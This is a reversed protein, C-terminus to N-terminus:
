LSKVQVLQARTFLMRLMSDINSKPIKDGCEPCTTEPYVYTIKPNTIISNLKAMLVSYQDNTLTKLIDIYIKLKSIVSKNINNKYTKIEIPILSANDHDIQFFGNIYAMTNLTDSYQKTINEPLSAYQLFTSYLTAHSYSIALDDSIQLLESEQMHSSTTTDQNFIKNFKEKTEDDEYEVMDKININILSTKGCKDNPCTRAIINSDAYCARYLGFYLSEIDETRILKCWQEFQPKNNDIIHDYIFKLSAIVSNIENSADITKRLNNLETGKCEAFTVSIGTHFLVWDAKKFVKNKSNIDSLVSLSSVPKQLIKFKTFDIPDKTVKVGSLSEKFRARIEDVSEEEKISISDDEASNLDKMLNDLDDHEDDNNDAITIQEEKNTDNNDKIEIYNTQDDADIYSELDSTNTNIINNVKNENEKAIRIKEQVAEDDLKEKSVDIGLAEAEEMEEKNKEIIPAIQNNYETKKREITNIMDSFANQIMPTEITQNNNITDQNTNIQNTSVIRQNNNEDVIGTNQVETRKKTANAQLEELTIERM